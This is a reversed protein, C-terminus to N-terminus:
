DAKKQGDGKGRVFSSSFHLEKLLQEVVVVDEPVDVNKMVAETRLARIPYGSELIRLQELREAKELMGTPMRSFKLLFDKRYVYVGIHKFFDVGFEKLPVDLDSGSRFRDFLEEVYPIPYRSFYLVYDDESCVLKVTNPDFLERASLIKARLTAVDQGPDDLLAKIAQDVADPALLPEDGQVNVVIECDLSLAAELVRDSGTRHSSSTMLVKGGFEKVSEFIRQDDTAVFVDDALSILSAREYVWMIMPKGLLEVLPKGPFRSSSYRAPIIVVTRPM